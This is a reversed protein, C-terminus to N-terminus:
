HFRNRSDSSAEIDGAQDGDERSAGDPLAHLDTM